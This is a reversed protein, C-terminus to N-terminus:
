KRSAANHSVGAEIGLELVTHRVGLRQGLERAATELLTDINPAARLKDTIERIAQERGARERTEEFLRLNEAAQAVQDLVTEIIALDEDTFQQAGDQGELQHLQLTGIAKGALTVPAVVSLQDGNSGNVLTVRNQRLAQRKAEMRATETVPSEGTPTYIHHGIQDEAQSRQWSQEIYRGQVTQAEVLAAEVEAFIRTNRIAVAVHNALSRLMGADGDDLGAFRDEQVDLVGVVRGELIIPVAMESYTNPLLPNPLWDEAERVNDVRVIQGTHAARAVLSTTTDLPISHGMAKMQSGVEGAGATMVLNQGSDDIIYVHAHYYDFRAKVQNVMEDLLQDFDLIASLRESLVAVVELRQTREAVQEELQEEHAQLMDEARKREVIERQAVQFSEIKQREARYFVTIGAVLAIAHILMLSNKSAQASDLYTKAPITVSIGGRIDGEKYGQKEHCGLCAQKVPLPAMYRYVVDGPIFELFEKNGVEFGTLAKTEWEDAKNAPRIPKLSTIHYQIDNEVQTIEAIQRTMFAPNIKTLKLGELTTIDRYPGELYPNPQTEETIPVYVGGHRANWLRTTEIESFFSRGISNVIQTTNKEVTQINWFLSYAIAVIWVIVPLFTYIKNKM